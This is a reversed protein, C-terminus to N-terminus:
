LYVVKQSNCNLIGSQIKFTEGCAKTTFPDTDCIYDCVQCNGKGRSESMGAIEVNPLKARVLHDKLSKGNRFGVVPIDQFVKKHEQAPTLLIHLEQLINRVNQFVLYYTINFTLKKQNSESKVKELLSVRSHERARLVQKRVMKENYGKEFLWNELDNCRKDFNCNDYCIRNLRLTQSYPIGKKCHYHHCSTPDLFQHADTHKVFLNTSLVGNKLTVEVDLFNVKEKSWDTTFTTTLHFSNIENIFEKLPEEGHKWIFFIDDIYRWWVSQKKKVKSLIKEELAAMFLVAYPPTFKTGIATGRIQKYTKDSFEFINNKSVLETFEILTDTAVQKDVRSDLFHKLFALGEDHPINPYLGVVAITCFITREPLQGLEKIKRMFHNTDKIYSKVKQALPQLHFHFFSSINETYFSCNSIVPRGPVDYLRKHIKPLLYFRAFKPDKVLFYNLTDQSLDGRKRIKKLSKFITSLLASSDNPVEMYVEKDELQKTAGKIYDECDWVIVAVGKDAGKIIISKDDKLSNMANREDKTLNNFRKSPIEIDLLREELCSLYTEIVADKNRPNFTPKPKCREESFPSEDNRLHWM